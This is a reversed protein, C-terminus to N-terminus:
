PGKHTMHPGAPSQPQPAGHPQAPRNYTMANHASSSWWTSQSLVGQPATADTLNFNPIRPISICMRRLSVGGEGPGQDGTGLAPGGHAWPGYAMPDWLGYGWLGYGKEGYGMAWIGYGMTGHSVLIHPRSRSLRKPHHLRVALAYRGEATM